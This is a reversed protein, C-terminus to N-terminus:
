WQANTLTQLVQPLFAEAPDNLRQRNTNHQSWCLNPGLARVQLTKQHGPLVRVVSARGGWGLHSGRPIPM